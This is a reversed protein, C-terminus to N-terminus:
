NILPKGKLARVTAELRLSELQFRSPLPQFMCAHLVRRALIRARARWLYRPIGFWYPGPPPSVRISSAVAGNIWRRVYDWTMRETPVHHHVVASGVWVGVHGQKLLEECYITDDGGFLQGGVRGLATDFPRSRLVETRFAMNAGYPVEDSSFPRVEKGFDLIAFMGSFWRWNERIWSPPETAFRPEIRGGFFSAHPFQQAAKVYEALWNPEVAVDDDTWLLLDGRAHRVASNRAHSLGQAPEFFHRLPLESTASHRALVSPTEDSSNNDVVLLEWEVGSPIRLERLQGLTEDLLKARNWTCIGVTVVM